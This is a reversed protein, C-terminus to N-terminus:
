RFPSSSGCRAGTSSQSRGGKYAAITSLRKRTNDSQCGPCQTSIVKPDSFRMLKEFDHGCDACHYEYIPM